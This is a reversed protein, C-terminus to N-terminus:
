SGVMEGGMPNMRKAGVDDTSRGESPRGKAEADAWPQRRDNVSRGATMMEANDPM